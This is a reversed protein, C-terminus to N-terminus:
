RQPGGLPQDQGLELLVAGIAAAASGMFLLLEGVGGGRFGVRDLAVGFTILAVILTVLRLHPVAPMRASLFVTATVGLLAVLLLLDIANLTTVILSVILGIAAIGAGVGILWGSLTVPATIPLNMQPGAPRRRRDSAASSAPTAPRRNEASRNEPDREREPERPPRAEIRTPADNPSAAPPEPRRDRDPESAREERDRGDDDPGDEVDELDPWAPAAPMPRETEDIPHGCTPCFVATEDVETGCNSCFREM